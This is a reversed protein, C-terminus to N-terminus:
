RRAVTHNKCERTQSQKCLRERYFGAHKPLASEYRILHSDRGSHSRHRFECLSREPKWSFRSGLLTVCHSFILPRRRFLAGQDSFPDRAHITRDLNSSAGLVGVVVVRLTQEVALNEAARVRMCFDDTNIGADSLFHGAHLRDLYNLLGAFLNKPSAILDDTHGRDSLL